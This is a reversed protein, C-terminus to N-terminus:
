FGAYLNLVGKLKRKELNQSPTLKSDPISSKETPDVYLNYFKGGNKQDYLKYNYDFSYSIPVPIKMYDRNWYCYVVSRQKGKTGNLNDYFTVGDLPGWTTPISIKAINAFTPLFDTMDVLSSDTTGQRVTGPGYVVLPVNIGRRDTYNKGGSVTTGKYQSQLNKNTANDSTFLIITNNTLGSSDIKSILKGIIKDMYAVMGPFYKKDEHLSDDVDPNWTAYDPDDPTPSWPHQALNLAYEIFFPKTKNSDIFASAYNYFM